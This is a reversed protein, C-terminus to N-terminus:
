VAAAYRPSSATKSPVLQVRGFLIRRGATAVSDPFTTMEPPHQLPPPPTLARESLLSLSVLVVCLSFAILDANSLVFATLWVLPLRSTALSLRM